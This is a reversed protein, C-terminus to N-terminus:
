LKTNMDRREVANMTWTAFQLGYWNGRYPESFSDVIKGKVGKEIGNGSNFINHKLNM